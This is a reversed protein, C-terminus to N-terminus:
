KTKLSTVSAATALQVNFLEGPPDINLEKIMYGVDASLSTANVNEQILGGMKNARMWEFADPKKDKRISARITISSGVRFGETLSVNPVKEDEFVFPVVATKYHEFPKNFTKEVGDLADKLRHLVVYAKALEVAGNRRAQALQQVMDMEIIREAMKIHRFAEVAAPLVDVISKPLPTKEKVAM